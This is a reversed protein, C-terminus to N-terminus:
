ERLLSQMAQIDLIDIRGYICAIYGEKKLSTLNQAVVTRSLGVLQALETQTVDVSARSPQEISPRRANALRLIAAVIRERGSRLLRDDLAGMAEQWHSASLRGLARWLSPSRAGIRELEVLPLHVLTSSRSTTMTTRRPRPGFLSSVGFWSGPQHINFMIPGRENPAAMQAVAGSVVGWLGDPEDGIWFITKKKAVSKLVGRAILAERDDPDLSDSWSASWLRTVSRSAFKVRFDLM